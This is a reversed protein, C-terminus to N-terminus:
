SYGRGYACAFSALEVGISFSELDRVQNHTYRVPVGNDILLQYFEAIDQTMQQKSPLQVRGSLVRAM